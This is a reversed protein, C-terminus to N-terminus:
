RKSAQPKEERDARKWEPPVLIFAAPILFGWAGFLGIIGSFVESGTFNTAAGFGYGVLGCAIFPVLWFLVIGAKHPKKHNTDNCNAM